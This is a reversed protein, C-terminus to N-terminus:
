RNLRASLKAFRDRTKTAPPSPTKAAGAERPSPSSSAPAAAAEAPPTAAAANPSESQTPKAIPPPAIALKEDGKPERLRQVGLLFGAAAAMAEADLYHNHRSREIWEFDTGSTVRVESVIQKLYDDTTGAHLLWAGPADVKYRIREHVWSKWHDTDLHFLDLGYKAAKGDQKVEIKSKVLPTRQTKRGKTPFAVSRHRRCFEYVRHEPVKEKKGPRFGSDIFMVKIPLGEIPDALYDDLKHWVEPDATTGLIEGHDILWSRGRAGWGRVVYVLRNGQVDVAATLLVLGAPLTRPGYGRRLRGIEQWDPLDGEGPLYVEGFGGNIVAQLESQDGSERAEVFAAARDGFSRFPSVLGSLWFSITTNPAPEGTVTGDAEIMQGPAVYRGRRNMEVKDAETIEGGCRPCAIWAKAQAEAATWKEDVQLCKFRPVFYESCNPCPWCWHHRTGQLFLKWITSSVEALDVATWFELGTTPDIETEPRGESPTSVIAHVFDSYTDGRRDILTLPNGQGKVNAMLEDAEDTLALSFPDSKLATSSGAHALRLPVGAIVKRTKTMRKGRAVKDAITPAQDLLDMIRPEAQETLYQKSPGVYLTPGPQQDFRQGLIDLFTETKGTQASCGLVVRRYRRAAVAQGFPVM